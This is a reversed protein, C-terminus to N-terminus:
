WAKNDVIKRIKEENRKEVLLVRNAQAKRIKDLLLDLRAPKELVDMAGLKMAEVGQQLTARGTLLIVQLDPNLDLLRKLTEIGDMEPMALDLIVADYANQGALDLAKLGNDAVDVALGRHAIRESLASVFDAEDDVLLIKDTGSM